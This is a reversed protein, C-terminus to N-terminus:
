FLIELVDGDRVIYDRGETRVMGARQLAEMTGHEVLEQVQFVRARIFGAEMDTHIRGAAQQVPTGKPVEWARLKGRVLTYFRILGLLDFTGEILEAVGSVTLGLERRFADREDAPLEVLESEWRVAVPVVHAEDGLGVSLARALEDLAPPTEDVNAVYLVPLASLLCLQRAEAYVEEAASLARVPQGAELSRLLTELRTEEVEGERPHAKWDRRRSEIHREVRELDALMLETDVIRADRVPDVGGFVHAVADDEFCRLVHLIADVERIHALFQNGLGEGRSAGEVLGAIDTFRITAYTVDDAELLAALSDLREDPVTVVGLQRDITTFPYNSVEAGAQTLLNFLSSKGVNPLGVLGASLM